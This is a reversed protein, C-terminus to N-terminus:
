EKWNLKHNHFGKIMKATTLKGSVFGFQKV